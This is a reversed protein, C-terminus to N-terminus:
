NHGFIVSAALLILTTVVAHSASIMGAGATPNSGSDGYDTFDQLLLSGQAVKLDGLQPNSVGVGAAEELVHKLQTYTAPNSGRSTITFNARVNGQGAREYGAIRVTQRGPLHAFLKEVTIEIQDSLEGFIPSNVLNLLPTWTWGPLVISVTMNVVKVPPAFGTFDRALNWCQTKSTGLLQCIETASLREDAAKCNQFAAVCEDQCIHSLDNDDQCPKAILFCALSKFFDSNCTDVDKIKVPRDLIWMVKDKIWSGHMAAALSDGVPGCLMEGLRYDFSRNNFGGCFDLNNCGGQCQGYRVNAYCQLLEEEKAGDRCNSIWTWNSPRLKGDTLDDCLDECADEEARDCCEGPADGRYRDRVLNRFFARLEMASGGSEKAVCQVFASEQPNFCALVNTPSRFGPELVDECVDRCARDSALTRNCCAMVAKQVTDDSPGFHYPRDGSDGYLCSNVDNNSCVGSIAYTLQTLQQNLALQHPDTVALAGLAWFDDFAAECRSMCETGNCCEESPLKVDYHDEVVDTFCDLIDDNGQRLCKQVIEVTNASGSVLNNCVAQCEASGDDRCCEQIDKRFEATSITPPIALRRRLCAEFIKDERCIMELKPLLTTNGPKSFDYFTQACITACQPRLAANHANQACCVSLDRESVAPMPTTPTPQPPATTDDDDDADSPTPGSSPSPTMPRCPNMKIVDWAVQKESNINVMNPCNKIANLCTLYNEAAACVLSINGKSATSAANYTTTCALLGCDPVPSGSPGSTPVVRNGAVLIRNSFCNPDNMDSASPHYVHVRMEILADSAPGPSPNNTPPIPSGTADDDRLASLFKPVPCRIMTNSVFTAMTTTNMQGNVYWICSAMTGVFTGNIQIDDSHSLGFAQVQPKTGMACDQAVLSGVFLALCVLLCGLLSTM